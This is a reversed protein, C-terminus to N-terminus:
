KEENKSYKLEISVIQFMLILMLYSWHLFFLSFRNSIQKIINRYQWPHNIEM